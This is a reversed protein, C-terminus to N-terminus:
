RMEACHVQILLYQDPPAALATQLNKTFEKWDLADLRVDQGIGAMVGQGGGLREKGVVLSSSYTLQPSLGPRPPRDAILTVVFYVGSDDPIREWAIKIGRVGDPLDRTTGRLLDMFAKETLSKGKLSEVKRRLAKSPKVSDAAFRV